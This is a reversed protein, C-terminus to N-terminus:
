ANGDRTDKAAREALWDRFAATNATRARMAILVLAKRSFQRVERPKHCGPEAPPRYMRVDDAGLTADLDPWHGAVQKSARTNNIWGLATGIETNSFWDRGSGLLQIIPNDEPPPWKTRDFVSM